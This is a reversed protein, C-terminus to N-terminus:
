PARSMAAALSRAIDVSVAKRAVSPHLGDVLGASVARLALHRLIALDDDAGTCNGGTVDQAVQRLEGVIESSCNAAAVDEARAVVFGAEDLAALVAKVDPAYSTKYWNRGERHPDDGNAICMALAIIDQVTKPKLKTM